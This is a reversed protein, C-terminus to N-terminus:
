TEIRLQGAQRVEFEALEGIKGITEVMPRLTERRIASISVCEAGSDLTIQRALSDIEDADLLDTKNLVILQPIENFELDSLIKDVSEIQQICGRTRRTSSM